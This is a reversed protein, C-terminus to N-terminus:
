ATKKRMVLYAGTGLVAVAGVGIGVMAMTSLGKKKTGFTSAYGAGGAGYGANYGASGPPPPLASQQRGAGTVATTAASSAAKLGTSSLWARAKDLMSPYNDDSALRGAVFNDWNEQIKARYTDKNTWRMMGFYQIAEDTAPKGLESLLDRILAIKRDVKQNACEAGTAFTDCACDVGFGSCRTIDIASRDIAGLSGLGQLTSLLKRRDESPSSSIQGRIGGRTVLRPAARAPPRPDSPPAVIPQGSLTSGVVMQQAPYSYSAAAFGQKPMRKPGFAFGAAQRIADTYDGSVPVGMDMLAKKARVQGSVSTDANAGLGNIYSSGVPSVAIPAGNMQTVAIPAIGLGQLTAAVPVRQFSGGTIVRPANIRAARINPPRVIREAGGKIAASPNPPSARVPQPIVIPAGGQPREKAAIAIQAAQQATLLMGPSRRLPTGAARGAAMKVMQQLKAQQAKRLLAKAEDKSMERVAPKVDKMVPM